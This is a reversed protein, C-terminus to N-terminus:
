FLLLPGRYKENYIILLDDVCRFYGVINFNLLIDYIKSHELHQLYFESLISSTPAGMTLGDHQVYTRGTFHFYNQDIVVTLLKLINRKLGEEVDYNNCASEIITLLEDTPINTYEM